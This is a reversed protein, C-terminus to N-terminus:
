QSNQTISALRSLWPSWVGAGAVSDSTIPKWAVEYILHHSSGRHEPIEQLQHTWILHETGAPDYEITILSWKGQLFRLQYSTHGDVCEASLIYSEQPWNGDKISIVRDTTCCWGRGSVSELKQRLKHIDSFKDLEKISFTGLKVHNLGLDERKKNLLPISWHMVQQSM